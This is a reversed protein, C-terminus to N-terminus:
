GTSGLGGAIANVTMLLSPLLAAAATDDGEAVLARWRRILEIQHRHLM